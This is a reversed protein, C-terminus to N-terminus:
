VPFLGAEVDTDANGLEILEDVVASHRRRFPDVSSFDPVSM